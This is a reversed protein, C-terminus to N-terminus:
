ETKELPYREFKYWKAFDKELSSVFELYEEYTVKKSRIYYESDKKACLDVINYDTGSFTIISRTSYTMSPQGRGFQFSGDARLNKMVWELFRYGYVKGNYERLFLKENIDIYTQYELPRDYTLIVELKGDGDVDIVTYGVDANDSYKNGIQNSYETLARLDDLFVDAQTNTDYFTIENLLVRRFIEPINALDSYDPTTESDPTKDDSCKVSTFGCDSDWNSGKSVSNWEELTGEFVLDTLSTCGKFAMYNVNTISRPLTVSKLSSCGYFAQRDIVTVGEPINISSLSSCNYFANASIETVGDPIILSELSECNAFAHEGITKVSEPIVVTKLSTCGSFSYNGIYTVDDPIVVEVLSTCNSFGGLYGNGSEIGRPLVIRKLSSCGEFMGWGWEDVSKPLTIEELATCGMFVEIGFSRVNDGIHISRLSKCSSFASSGISKLSKPLSISQLNTCSWFASSGIATVGEPITISTIYSNKLFAGSGIVKISGDNPITSKKGALILIGREKEILCNNKAYYKPNGSAVTIKEINTCGSLFYSGLETFTSPFHISVINNNDMIAGLEFGKVGEPLVLKDRTYRTFSAEGIIEVSGDAPITSNNLIHLLTKTEKNILCNGEDSYVPNDPHVKITKLAPCGYLAVGETLDRPIYISELSDCRYFQEYYLYTLSEPFTLSRLSRCEYFVYKSISELTEPFTISELATCGRFAYGQISVIPARLVISKVTTNDKLASDSVYKVPFGKYITAVVIDTETCTGIGSFRAVYEKTIQDYFIYYSLGPTGDDDPHLTVSAQGDSCIVTTFPCGINWRDGKKIKNWEAVTGKFILKELANCGAFAEEGIESLSAPLTLETFNKYNYAFARYGISEITDPLIFGKISIKMRFTEDPIATVPKGDYKSAIQLPSSYERWSGISVISASKGDKNVNYELGRSGDYEANPNGVPANGDSCNVTTFAAGLNWGEAKTIARWASVSGKFTVSKLSECGEFAGAQIDRLKTGLTISELSRCGKFANERIEGVSDPVIVSKLNVCGSLIGEGIASQAGSLDVHELSVCDKFIYAGANGAFYMVADFEIKRLSTCGEFASTYVYSYNDGYSFEKSIKIEEIATCGMFAGDYIYRMRGSLKVDKLSTCNRFAYKGIASIQDPLSLAVLGTCGDFARESISDLYQEDPIVSAKCGLLISYDKVDIICNGSSRYLENGEAVSLVEIATCGSVGGIEISEVTSSFHLKKLKPCDSIARDKVAKVGEPIILETIEDNESISGAGIIEVSGDAPITFSGFTLLLTKTKKDILCGSTFAYRENDQSIVITELAPIESFINLPITQMGAGITINKLATCGVFAGEAISQVSDPITLSVISRCNNFAGKSISTVPVGNYTSAVKVETDSCNGIGILEARNYRVVYRLGQSGDHEPEPPATTVEETTIEETTVEESTVEETTAEETTVEGTTEPEATTEPESLESTIEQTTEDIIGALHEFNRIIFTIVPIVTGLLLLSAALALIQRLYKKPSPKGVPMKAVPLSRYYKETEEIFKPDIYDLADLLRSDKYGTM